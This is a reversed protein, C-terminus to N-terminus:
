LYTHWRNGHFFETYTGEKQIPYRVLSGAIDPRGLCQSLIGSLPISYYPIGEDSLHKLPLQRGPLKFSKITTLSPVQIGMNRFIFWVFSLNKEGM